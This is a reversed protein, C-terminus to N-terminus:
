KRIIGCVNVHVRKPYLGTTSGITETITNQIHNAVTIINSGYVVLVNLELVLNGKETITVKMGKQWNKANLAASFEANARTTLGGFGEIESLTNYVISSIVDESIFIEGHENSQTIYQKKDAM